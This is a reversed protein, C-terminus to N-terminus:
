EIGTRFLHEQECWDDDISAASYMPPGAAVNRNADAKFPSEREHFRVVTVWRYVRFHCHKGSVTREHPSGLDLLPGYQTKQQFFSILLHRQRVQRTRLPSM